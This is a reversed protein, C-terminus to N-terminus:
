VGSIRPSKGEGVLARMVAFTLLVIIILFLSLVSAPGLRMIETQALILVTLHNWRASVLFIIASVATMARTFAFSLGAIFAPKILPMTVHSFTYATSAGLNTSAEEISRDIQTLSAVGAEIGVPMERFIFCLVIIAATGTLLLPPQNFALIYGIGVVTGPVAYALMSTFGLARKGPFNKRVLLFAIIMGLLGTIPTAWAALYLTAKISDKGVDWAYRFHEFTPTWNVGWTKVFAGAIVTLYFLLIIGSIILCGAFLAWRLVKPTALIRPSSPKGTVTVYSRKSIWYREITFALMAPVLLIIALATGRPMNFMGTFQLYAQVSLVEFDGGLVMPNAFDALSSVFVLLWASAIGPTALPLTITRFVHWRSAGLDLAGEELDSSIGQLVGNLTMYAIPFMSITQVLVLGPLGYINFGRLGLLERTILGNRGLLLIVSITFMFPPSVLPLQSMQRFFGKWPIDTRNLAYAFLFGVITSVTATLVGLVLTNTITRRLWWQSFIYRYTELTFSGRPFFSLWFVKGLPYLVFIILSLSIAILAVLLIPDQRLAAWRSSRPRIGLEASPIAM